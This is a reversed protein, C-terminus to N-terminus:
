GWSGVLDLIRLTKYLFAPIKFFTKTYCQWSLLQLCKQLEVVECIFM